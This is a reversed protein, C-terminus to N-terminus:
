RVRLDISGGIHKYHLMIANQIIHKFSTLPDEVTELDGNEHKILVGLPPRNFRIAGLSRPTIDKGTEKEIIRVRVRLHGSGESVNEIVRLFHKGSESDFDILGHKEHQDAYFRLRKTKTALGAEVQRDLEIIQDALAGM